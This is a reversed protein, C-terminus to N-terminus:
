SEGKVGIPGEARVRRQLRSTTNTATLEIDIIRTETDARRPEPLHAGVPTSCSGAGTTPSTVLRALSVKTLRGEERRGALQQACSRPGGDADFVHCSPRAQAPRGKVEVEVGALRNEQGDGLSDLLLEQRRVLRPKPSESSDGCRVRWRAMSALKETQCRCPETSLATTSARSLSGASAARLRCHASRNTAATAAWISRSRASPCVM